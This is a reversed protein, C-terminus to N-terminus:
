EGSFYDVNSSRHVMVRYGDHGTWIGVKDSDPYVTAAPTQVDSYMLVRAEEGSDNKIQHAGEPSPPFFCLDGVALETEGGPDRLTPRGALVLLWEEEGTEWHYPCLKKGPPILYVTSGTSKAGLGPGFRAMGCRYGEPDTDDYEFELDHVNVRPM